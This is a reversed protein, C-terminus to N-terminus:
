PIRYGAAAFLEYWETRELSIGAGEVCEAVRDPKTTGVIVQMHAPHRTIWATAIATPSTDYHVALSALRAQLDGLEPDTFILSEFFGRRFPSWAQLTIGHLRSYNLLGGDRDASQAEGEMNAAVGQAVLAAHGLGFQVQNTLLPQGVSTALLEIQQPTHNSVGFARVKGSAELVDFAAAVEDPEVLADPRHLLLVDLYDTRLAELSDDVQRLIYETSFDFGRAGDGKRIGCKSQIVIEEREASSLELADGFRRECDHMTAGYIDAHDFLVVGRERAGSYLSRVGAADLRGIEMMGLGIRAGAADLTLDM